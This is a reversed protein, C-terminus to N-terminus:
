VREKINSTGYFLWKRATAIEDSLLLAQFAELNFWNLKEDPYLSLTADKTVLSIAKFIKKEKGLNWIALM